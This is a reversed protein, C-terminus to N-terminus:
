EMREKVTQMFSTLAEHEELKQKKSYKPVNRKLEMFERCESVNYKTYVENLINETLM